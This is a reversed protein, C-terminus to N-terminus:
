EALYDLIAAFSVQPTEVLAVITWAAPDEAIARLYDPVQARAAEISEVNDLIVTIADGNVRTEQLDAIVNM